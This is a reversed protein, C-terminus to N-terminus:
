LEGGGRDRHGGQRGPVEGGPLRVRARGAAQVGQALRDPGEM